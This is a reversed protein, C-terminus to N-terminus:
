QKRLSRPEAVLIKVVDNVVVMFIMNPLLSSGLSIIKEEEIVMWGCSGDLDHLTLVRVFIINGFRMTVYKWPQWCTSSGGAVVRLFYQHPLSRSVWIDVDYIHAPRIRYVSTVVVVILLVALAIVAVKKM